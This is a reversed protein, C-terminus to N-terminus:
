SVGMYNILKDYVEDMVSIVKASLNYANQYRVLNMAEEDVDVGSVSLRQNTIADLINSQSEAFSSAKDTDIGIEAVLTQFFGEPTGLLKKDDKLALLREVIDNAETGNTIDKTTAVLNSNAILDKSVTFNEATMFYYYGYNPEDEPIDQYYAPGTQSNFSIYDYYTSDSSDKLPGFVYDRGSVRSTATFFDMGSDGNLDQGDRHIDNFAKAYTRVLENLQGMYYPIGKYNISEGIQGLDGSADAEVFDELEFTYVYKGDEVNVEFGTYAYEHDGVTIVGSEPINLKEQSNINTDSLMIFNEGKQADAKGQLNFQNNGDRVELLAQLSGGLTNSRMDFRQGNDWEINYLGDVDNQNDKYERPVLKLQNFNNNDVLTVGDLKIIYSTVGIGDGVAKESVSINAIESLEDVLLARQDRLDNAKGGTVELTSIQKSLAAIQQATSNIQEVKNRVEFNCEEQIKKLNTSLSNFYEAFSEAYNVLQNRVTLSSPNKSLEQLSNYMSNYTTTFGDVSVENFYSEIENMYYSKGSYEGYQLNNKWYKSDYYQDRQQEVGDVTVGTGAMGYSSHMQLAKNAKQNMVQRSYGETEANSVNHATTDLAAQYTYLGSVGINLGFFTSSM